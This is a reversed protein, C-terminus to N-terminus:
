SHGEQETAIPNHKDLRVLTTVLAGLGLLTLVGGIRLLRMTLLTYKGTTPNYRYCYLLIQDVPNGIKSQSAEVLGLRLNKPPYDVGYFYRSITGDPTLLLVSAAHVFENTNPDLTAKFGIAKTLDAVAKEDGTLFHWGDSGPGRLEGRHYLDLAREKRGAADEPGEAPNFSFAVVEYESGADFTLVKLSKVLSELILTCLMPCRYYVPVLVVPRTGFYDGLRVSNGDADLWQSDLPVKDGIRQEIGADGFESPRTSSDLDQATAGSSALLSTLLTLAATTAGRRRLAPSFPSM